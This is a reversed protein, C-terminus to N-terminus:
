QEDHPSMIAVDKCGKVRETFYVRASMIINHTKFNPIVSTIFLLVIDLEDSFERTKQSVRYIYKYIFSRYALGGLM